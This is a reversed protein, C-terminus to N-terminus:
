PPPRRETQKRGTYDSVPTVSCLVVKMGHGQALETMAAVNDTIMRMTVPGTNRALDNTGALLVVGAAKHLIVGPMMRVLMQPTTRGGIGRNVYPKGPFSM